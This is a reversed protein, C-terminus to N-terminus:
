GVRDRPCCRASPTPRRSNSKWETLSPRGDRRPRAQDGRAPPLRDDAREDHGLVRRRRAVAPGLLGRHPQARRRAGPGGEDGLRRRRRARGEARRVSAGSLALAAILKQMNTVAHNLRSAVAARGAGARHSKARPPTARSSGPGRRRSRHPQGAAAAERGKSCINAHGEQHKCYVAASRRAFRRNKFPANRAATLLIHAACFSVSSAQRKDCTIDRSPKTPAHRM